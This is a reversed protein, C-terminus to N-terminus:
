PEMETGAKGLIKLLRGLQKIEQTDLATFVREAIEAHVPFIKHILRYGEDTLKVTIIRRDTINKERKVLHRKELNDVVMTINGSTKLIKNGIDRQSLPGLHYLAELVGFQSVTLNQLKLHKHMRSTVSETARMMKAYTNLILQQEKKIQSKTRM